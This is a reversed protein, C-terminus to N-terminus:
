DPTRSRSFLNMSDFGKDIFPQLLDATREFTTVGL